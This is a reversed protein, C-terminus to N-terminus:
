TCMNELTEEAQTSKGGRGEGESTVAAHTDSSLYLPLHFPGPLFVPLIFVTFRTLTGYSYSHFYQFVVEAQLGMLVGEKVRWRAQANEETLVAYNVM